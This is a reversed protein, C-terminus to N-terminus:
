FLNFTVTVMTEVEIPEGNLLFPRYHWQKVAAIAAPALMPHGSVLELEKIDGERTVIAKLIVEGQVRAQRALLPYTPEIKRILLGRTVGQSVRIRKPQVVALKPVSALNSTQSVIGGIIGGLQGGPIGGAVGGVVGGTSLPPPAEEERIMQVKEPIRSPTRLQGNLLESQVQKVVKAVAQAAPPPPPPPPPAMLYTLLQQKPLVDTFMLPVIILTGIVLCQVNFSIMAAFKRRKKEQAGSDLLSDAFLPREPLPGPIEPMAQNQEGRVLEQVEVPNEIQPERVETATPMIGELYTVKCHSKGDQAAYTRHTLDRSKTIAIV